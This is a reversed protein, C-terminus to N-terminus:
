PGQFSPQQLRGPSQVQKEKGRTTVAESSRSIRSADPEAVQTVGREGDVAECM